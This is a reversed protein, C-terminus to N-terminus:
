AGSRVLLESVQGRGEGKSNIRRTCLVADLDLGAYLARTAPVDSNSLLGTLGRTPLGRFVTALRTQDAAGFTTGDYANFKSTESMPWYPPDLYVVAGSSAAELVTEFDGNVLEVGQLAESARLLNDGDIQPPNAYRGFPVNFVGSGNLRYLGNFGNRNLYLVRAAREAPTLTEVAMSRVAYYTEETGAWSRAQALVAEPLTQVARYTDVLEVNRDGLIARRIRGARVLAFFVAGGGVFPEVYCDIPGNPLRRLIEPLLEGKGGAWKLFPRPSPRVSPAKSRVAMRRTRDAGPGIWM